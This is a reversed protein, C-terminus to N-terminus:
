ASIEYATKQKFFFFLLLVVVVVGVFVVFFVCCGYVYNYDACALVVVNTYTNYRWM